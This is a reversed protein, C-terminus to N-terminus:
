GAAARQPRVPVDEWDFDDPQEDMFDAVAPRPEEAPPEEAIATTVAPEVDPRETGGVEHRLVEVPQEEVPPLTEEVAAAGALQELDVPQRAESPASAVHRPAPEGAETEIPRWVVRYGHPVRWSGDGSRVMDCGCRACKGFCVDQNWRAKAPDARHGLLCLVSVEFIRMTSAPM